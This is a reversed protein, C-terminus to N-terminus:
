GAARLETAPGDSTAPGDGRCIPCIGSFVLRHSTVTYGTSTEVATESETLLCVPVEAVAGCSDCRIHDHHAGSPEFHSRGDGLDVRVLLGEDILALAARFVSSPDATQGSARVSDLMQELSWPRRDGNTVLKRIADRVPTPRPM